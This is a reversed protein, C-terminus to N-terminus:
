PIKLTGSFGAPIDVDVVDRAIVHFAGVGGEVNSLPERRDAHHRTSAYRAYATSGRVLTLRLTHEPLMTETRDIAMLYVGTWSGLGDDEISRAQFIEPTPIIAQGSPGASPIVQIVPEMWEIEQTPVSTDVTWSGSVEILYASIKSIDLRFSDLRLSDFAIADVPSPPVVISVQDLQIPQPVDDSASAALRGNRDIVRMHVRDGPNLVTPPMSPVFKHAASPASTWVTRREPDEDTWTEVMGGEWIGVAPESLLTAQSIQLTDPRSAVHWFAEVVVTGPREPSVTDCGMLGMFVLVGIALHHKKGVM